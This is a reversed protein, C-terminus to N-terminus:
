LLHELVKGLATPTHFGQLVCVKTIIYTVFEIYFVIYVFVNM